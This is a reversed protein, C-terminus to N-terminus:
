DPRKNVVAPGPFAEAIQAESEAVLHAWVGGTEYDYVVLHEQKLPWGEDVAASDNYCRRAPSQSRSLTM